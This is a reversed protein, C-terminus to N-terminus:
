ELDRLFQEIELRHRLDFLLREEVRIRDNNKPSTFMTDLQSLLHARTSQTAEFGSYMTTNTAASNFVSVPVLTYTITFVISSASTYTSM